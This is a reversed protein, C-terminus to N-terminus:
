NALEFRTYAEWSGPRNHISAGYHLLAELYEQDTVGNAEAIERLM